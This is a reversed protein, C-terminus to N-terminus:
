KSKHLFSARDVANDLPTTKISALLLSIVLRPDQSFLIRGLVGNITCTTCLKDDGSM